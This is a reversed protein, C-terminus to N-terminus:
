VYMNGGLSDWPWPNASWEFNPYNDDTVVLPGYKENFIKKCAKEEEVYKQFLRYAEMDEPNLDLYLNLDNIAFSYEMVKMLLMEREDSPVLKLYTYNKYPVYENRFMNGKQFGESPELFENQNIELKFDNGPIEFFSFDFDENNFLM